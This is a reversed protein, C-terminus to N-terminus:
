LDLLVVRLEASQPVLGEDLTFSAGLPFVDRAKDGVADCGDVSEQQDSLQHLVVSTEKPLGGLFGLFLM